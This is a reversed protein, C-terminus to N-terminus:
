MYPKNVQALKQKLENLLEKLKIDEPRADTNSLLQAQLNLADLKAKEAKMQEQVVERIQQVDVKKIQSVRVEPDFTGIQHFVGILGTVATIVAAIATLVGPITHWWSDKSKKEEDM